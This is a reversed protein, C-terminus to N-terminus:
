PPSKKKNLVLYGMKNEFLMHFVDLFDQIRQFAVNHCFTTVSQHAVTRNKYKGGAPLPIHSFYFEDNINLPSLFIGVRPDVTGTSFSAQRTEWQITSGLTPIKEPVM